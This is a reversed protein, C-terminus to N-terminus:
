DFTVVFIDKSSKAKDTKVFPLNKLMLKNKKPVYVRKTHKKRKAQLEEKHLEYYKKSYEQVAQKNREYYRKQYEIREKKHKSYYSENVIAM